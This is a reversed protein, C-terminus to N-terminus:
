FAKSFSLSIAQQRGGPLDKNSTVVLGASLAADRAIAYDAGLQLVTSGGKGRGLRQDLDGYTSAVGVSVDRYSDKLEQERGLKASLRLPESVQWSAQYAAGARLLNFRQAGYRLATSLGSTEQFGDLRVQRYALALSPGHRLAPSNAVDYGAELKLGRTSGNADASETRTVPGLVADRHFTYRNDALTLNGQVWAAGPRWVGYLSFAPSDMDFRGLGSVTQNGHQFSVAVGALWDSGFRRDLGASLTRPQADLGGQGQVTGLRTNGGELTVWGEVRDDHRLGDLFRRQRAENARWSVDLVQSAQDAAQAVLIPANLSGLVYDSILRHAATTPHVQDAFVYTQAANPAALNASTCTLSSSGAPLCAVGNTGYTFGFAGPNALVENLLRYVDMQMVRAGSAQLGAGFAQNYALSLNTLATAAASGSSVGLPTNGIDPLNFVVIQRAGATQLRAVQAALSQAAGTINSLVTADSANGRTSPSTWYFIDNAGGWLTYLANPDAKGGTTSLYTSVQTSLSQAFSLGYGPQGDVRAGGEAWNTGGAVPTYGSAPNFSLAPTATLGLGAAVNESWVPGPNTTFKGGGGALAALNKFTGSDSLSDGFVVMQSAQFALAGQCALALAFGLGWADARAPLARALAQSLPRQRAPQGTAARPRPHDPVFCDNM